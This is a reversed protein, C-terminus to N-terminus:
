SWTPPRATAWSSRSWTPPTQRPDPYTGPVLGDFEFTGDEDTREEANTGIDIIGLAGLRAFRVRTRRPKGDSTTVRGTIRAGPLRLLVEHEDVAPIDVFFRSAAGRREILFVFPGPRALTVEFRGEDDLDVENANELLGEGEALTVLDGQAMPKGDAYVVQGRVRVPNEPAGGLVVHHTQGAVVEVKGLRLPGEGREDNEVMLLHFGAPVGTFVFEGAENAEAEDRHFGSGAIRSSIEVGVGPDPQGEVDLVLGTVTGGRALRVQVGATVRGAVVDAKTLASIDTVWGEAEAVVEYTGAPLDGSTFQGAPDCTM